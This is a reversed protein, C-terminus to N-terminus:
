PLAEVPYVDVLMVLGILVLILQFLRTHEDTWDRVDQSRLRLLAIGAITLIGASALAHSMFLIFVSGLLCFVAVGIDSIKGWGGYKSNQEM